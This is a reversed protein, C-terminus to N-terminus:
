KSDTFKTVFSTFGERLEALKEHSGNLEDRLKAVEGVLTQNAKQLTEVQDKGELYKMYYYYSHAESARVFEVWSDRLRQRSAEAATM